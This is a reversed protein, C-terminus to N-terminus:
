EDDDDGLEFAEGAVMRGWKVQPRNQGEPVVPKSRLLSQGEEGRVSVPAVTASKGLQPMPVILSLVRVLTIWSAMWALAVSVTTSMCLVNIEIMPLDAEEPSDFSAAPNTCPRNATPPFLTVM